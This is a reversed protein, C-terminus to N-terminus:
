CWGHPLLDVCHGIYVGAEKNETILATGDIIVNGKSWIGAKGNRTILGGDVTSSLTLISVGDDANDSIEGGEMSFGTESALSVGTTGNRLIAGDRLYIRPPPSASAVTVITTATTSITTNSAGYAPSPTSGAPPSGGTWSAGGDLILTGGAGGLTLTGGTINILSSINSAAKITRTGQAKLTLNKNTTLPSEQPPNAGDMPSSTLAIDNIVTITEGAQAATIAAALTTYLLNRGNETRMAVANGASVTVTFSAHHGGVSYTVTQIGTETFRNSADTGSVTFAITGYTTNDDADNHRLQVTTGYRDNLVAQLILGTPDFTKGITYDTTDPLRGGKTSDFTLYAIAASNFVATLKINRCPMVFRGLAYLQDADLPLPNAPVTIATEGPLLTYSLGNEQLQYGEEAETCVTITDGM